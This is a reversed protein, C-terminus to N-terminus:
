GLYKPYIQEKCQTNICVQPDKRKTTAHINTSGWFTAKLKTKKKEKQFDWIYADTKLSSFVGEKLEKDVKWIIFTFWKYFYMEKNFYERKIECLM